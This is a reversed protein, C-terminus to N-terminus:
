PATTPETTPRPTCAARALDAPIAVTDRLLKSVLWAPEMNRKLQKYCLKKVANMEAKTGQALSYGGGHLSNVILIWPGRGEWPGLKSVQLDVIVLPEGHPCKRKKKTMAM